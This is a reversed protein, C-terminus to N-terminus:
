AGRVDDNVAADTFASDFRELVVSTVDDGAAVVYPASSDFVGSWEKEERMNAAVATVKRRLIEQESQMMAQIDEQRAQLERQLRREEMKLAVIKSNLVEADLAKSQRLLDNNKEQLKAVETNQYQQLQEVESDIRNRLEKGQKSETILRSIDVSVLDKAYAASMAVLAVLAIIKKM